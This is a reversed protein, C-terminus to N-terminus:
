RRWCERVVRYPSVQIYRCYRHVYPHYFYYTHHIRVYGCDHWRCYHYASASGSLSLGIFLSALLILIKFM